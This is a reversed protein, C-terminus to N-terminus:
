TFSRRFQRAITRESYDCYRSLNRFNVRGRLVLITSFLMVLFKRQPRGVMPMQKLINNVITM